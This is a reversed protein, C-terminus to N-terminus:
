GLRAAKQSEYEKRWAQMGELSMKGGKKLPLLRSAVSSVPMTAAKKTLDRPVELPEAQYLAVLKAIVLKELNEVIRRQLGEDITRTSGATPPLLAVREDQTSMANMWAICVSLKSKPVFKTDLPPM